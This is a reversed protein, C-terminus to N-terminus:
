HPSPPPTINQTQGTRASFIAFIIFGLWLLIMLVAQIEVFSFVVAVPLSTAATIRMCATYPINLKFLPSLIFVIIGGLTGLLASLFVYLGFASVAGFPVYLQKFAEGLQIWKERSITTDKMKAAKEYDVSNTNIDRIAITNKTVLIFANDTKMRSIITDTDFATETMDFVILLKPLTFKEPFTLTQVSEGEIKIIGDNITLPPIAEFFADYEENFLANSSIILANVANLSGILALIFLFGIGAGKWSHVLRYYFDSSYFTNHINKLVNLM